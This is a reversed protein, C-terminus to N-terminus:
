ESILLFTVVYDGRGDGVCIYEFVSVMVKSTIKMTNM